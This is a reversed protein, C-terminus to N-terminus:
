LNDGELYDANCDWGQGKAWAGAAPQELQLAMKGVKKQECDAATATSSQVRNYDWFWQM